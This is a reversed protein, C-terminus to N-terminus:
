HPDISTMFLAGLKSYEPDTIDGQDKQIGQLTDRDLVRGCSTDLAGGFIEDIWDVTADFFLNIQRGSDVRHLHGAPVFVGISRIWQGDCFCEVDHGDM